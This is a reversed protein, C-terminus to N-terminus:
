GPEHAKGQALTGAFFRWIADNVDRERSKRWMTVLLEGPAGRAPNLSPASMPTVAMLSAGSPAEISEERGVGQAERVELDPGGLELDEGLPRAHAQRHALELGEHDQRL